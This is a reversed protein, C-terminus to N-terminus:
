TTNNDASVIAGAKEVYLKIDYADKLSLEYVWESSGAMMLCVSCVKYKKQILGQSIVCYQVDSFRIQSYKHTFVGKKVVVSDDKIYCMSNLYLSPLYFLILVFYVMLLAVAVIFATISYFVFLGGTMLELVSLLLSARIRWVWISRESILNRFGVSKVFM